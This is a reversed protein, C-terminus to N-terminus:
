WVHQFSDLKTDPIEEGLINGLLTQAAFFTDWWNSELDILDPYLAVPLEVGIDLDGIDADFWPSAYSLGLEALATHFCGKFEEDVKAKVVQHLAEQDVPVLMLKSEIDIGM